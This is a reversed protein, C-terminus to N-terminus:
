DQAALDIQPANADPSQPASADLPGELSWAAIALVALPILGCTMAAWSIHSAEGNVKDHSWAYYIFMLTLLNGAIVAGVIQSWYYIDM